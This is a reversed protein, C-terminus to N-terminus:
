SIGGPYLPWFKAADQVFQAEPFLQGESSMNVYRNLSVSKLNFHFPGAGSGGQTLKYFRAGADTSSTCSPTLPASEIPACILKGNSLARIVVVSNAADVVEFRFREWPGPAYRITRVYDVGGVVSLMPPRGSVQPDETWLAVYDNRTGAMCTDFGNAANVPQRFVGPVIGANAFLCEAHLKRQRFSSTGEKGGDHYVIMLRGNLANTITAQNTWETNSGCMLVGQYAFPGSPSNGAAWAIVENNKSVGTGANADTCEKPLSAPKVAFVLTWPNTGNLSTKYLSPGEMYPTTSTTGDRRTCGGFRSIGNITLHTMATSITRMDSDLSAYSLGGCNSYDGDAFVLHRKTVNGTSNTEVAVDPDSQYGGFNSVTGIYNFPGFPGVSVGVAIRSSTHVNPPGGTDNTNSVDPVYSYYTDTFPIRVVSPAWLHHANTPVFGGSGVEIWDEHFAAGKDVWGSYGNPSWLVRTAEMPYVNGPPNAFQQGMDESTYLCYGNVRTTPDTCTIIHPDSGNSQSAFYPGAVDASATPGTVAFAALAALVSAVTFGTIALRRQRRM